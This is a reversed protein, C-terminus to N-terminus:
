IYLTQMYAKGLVLLYKNQKKSHCLKIGSNEMGYVCVHHIEIIDGDWPEWPGVARSWHGIILSWACETGADCM